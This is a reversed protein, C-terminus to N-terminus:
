RRLRALLRAIGGDIQDFMTEFADDDMGYPDLVNEDEEGKNLLLLEATSGEPQLREVDAFNASDMAVIHTFDFFDEAEVKRARLNAIDFGNKVAVMQSGHQPPDGIHWDGTGASEVEVALGADAARHRMLGDAVPSRCINGLCVFLVRYQNM